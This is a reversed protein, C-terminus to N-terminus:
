AHSTAHEGGPHLMPVPARSLRRVGVFFAAQGATSISQEIWQLALTQEAIGALRALVFMAVLHFGFLVVGLRDERRSAWVILTISVATSGVVTLVLWPTRWADGGRSALAASAVAVAAIVAWPLHRVPGTRGTRVTWIATLVLAFGAGLLPFLAADLAAVQVGPGAVLAKWTVKALGGTGVLAAGLLGIPEAARTHDGLWRALLVLGAASLLVPVIDEAALWLTYETTPDLM